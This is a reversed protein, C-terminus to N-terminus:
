QPAAPLDRFVLDGFIGRYGKASKYWFILAHKDGMIKGDGLYKWQGSPLTGLFHKVFQSRV